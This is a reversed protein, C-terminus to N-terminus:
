ARTAAPGESRQEVSEFRAEVRVRPPRRARLDRVSDMAVLRGADLLGDVHAGDEMEADGDVQLDQARSWESLFANGGARIRGRVQAGPTLYVNGSVLVDGVVYAGEGLALSGTVEVDGVVTVRRALQLHGGFALPGDVRQDPGIYGIEPPVSERTFDHDVEMSLVTRLSTRWALASARPRPADEPFAAAVPAVVPVVTPPATAPAQAPAPAPTPAPTVVVPPASPAQAAPVPAPLAYPPLAVIQVNPAPSPMPHVHTEEFETETTEVLGHDRRRRLYEALVFITPLTLFVIVLVVVAGNVLSVTDSNIQLLM